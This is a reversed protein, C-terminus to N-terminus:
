EHNGNFKLTVQTGGNRGASWTIAAGMKQARKQTSKLGRGLGRSASLGRGDDILRLYKEEATWVAELTAQQADAHKITNAVLERIIRGIYIGNSGELVSEDTINSHPTFLISATELQAKCEVCIEKFLDTFTMSVKMTDAVSQRIKQMVSKAQNQLDADELQYILKLLEPGVEDHINRYIRSRETLKLQEIVDDVPTSSSPPKSQRAKIHHSSQLLVSCMLVAFGGVQLQWPAQMHVTLAVGFILLWPLLTLSQQGRYWFVVQVIVMVAVFCMLWLLALSEMLWCVLGVPIIVGGLLLWPPSIVHEQEAAKDLYFFTTFSVLLAVPLWQPFWLGCGLSVWVLGVLWPYNRNILMHLASLCLLSGALLWLGNVM